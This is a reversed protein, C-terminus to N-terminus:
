QSILATRPVARRHTAKLQCFTRSILDLTIIIVVIGALVYQTNGHVVSKVIM